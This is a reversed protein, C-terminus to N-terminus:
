VNEDEETIDVWREGNLYRQLYFALEDSIM